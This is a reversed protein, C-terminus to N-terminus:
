TVGVRTRLNVTTNSGGLLARHTGARCFSRLRVRLTIIRSFNKILLERGTEVMVIPRMRYFLQRENFRYRQAGGSVIDIVEDLHDLVVDKQSTGSASAGRM